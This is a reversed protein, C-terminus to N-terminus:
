GFLSCVRQVLSSGKSEAVTRQSYIYVNWEGVAFVKSTYNLERTSVILSEGELNSVLGDGVSEILAEVGTGESVEDPHITKSLSDFVRTTPSIELEATQTYESDDVASIKWESGNLGVSDAWADRLRSNVRENCKWEWDFTTFSKSPRWVSLMCSDSLEESEVLPFEGVTEIVVSEGCLKLEISEETVKFKGTLSEFGGFEVLAEYPMDVYVSEHVEPVYVKLFADPSPDTIRSIGGNEHRRKVTSLDGTHTMNLNRYEAKLQVVVGKVVGNVFVDELATDELRASDFGGFASESM